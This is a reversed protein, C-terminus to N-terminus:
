KTSLLEVSQELDNLKSIFNYTNDSEVVIIAVATPLTVINLHDIRRFDEYKDFIM